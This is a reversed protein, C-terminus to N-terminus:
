SALRTCVAKGSGSPGIMLMNGRSFNLVRSVRNVHLVCSEFLVVNLNDKSENNFDDLFEGIAQKLFVVDSIEEYKKREDGSNSEMASFVIRVTDLDNLDNPDLANLDVVDEYEDENDIQPVNQLSKEISNSFVEKEEVEEFKKKSVNDETKQMDAFNYTSNKIIKDAEAQDADDILRDRFVRNM